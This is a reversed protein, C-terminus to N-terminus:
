GLAISDNAAGGEIQLLSRGYSDSAHEHSHCNHGHKVPVSREDHYEWRSPKVQTEFSFTAYWSWTAWPSVIM